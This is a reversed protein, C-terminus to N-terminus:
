VSVETVNPDAQWVPAALDFLGQMQATNPLGDCTMTKPDDDLIATWVSSLSRGTTTTKFQPVSLRSLSQALTDRTMDDDLADLAVDELSRFVDGAGAHVETPSAPDSVTAMLTLPFERGVRDVSPMLVGLMADPGALGAGLTFRWVPASMFCAQWDPGLLRRVEQMGTQLWIDWPEVFAQPANIRFFDGLSPMKGFAGFGTM